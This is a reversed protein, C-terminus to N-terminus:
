ITTLFPSFPGDMVPLPGFFLMALFLGFYPGGMGLLPGLSHGIIAPFLGLIMLLIPGSFPLNIALLLVMSLLIM